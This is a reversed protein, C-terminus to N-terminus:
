SCTHQENFDFHQINVLKFDTYSNQVPHLSRQPHLHVDQKDTWLLQYSLGFAWLILAHCPSYIEGQTRAM